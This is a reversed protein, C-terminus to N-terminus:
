EKILIKRYRNGERTVVEAIYTGNSFATVDRKIRNGNVVETALLEGTVAYLNLTAIEVSSEITIENTSPNPYLAFGNVGNIEAVGLPSTLVFTDTTSCGGDSVTLIYTGPGLDYLNPTTAGTNWSYTITGIGGSVSTIIFGDTCSWCSPNNVFTTLTFSAVYSDVFGTETTYCGNANFVTVSYYGSDLSSISSATSGTSWDYSVLPDNTTGIAVAGNNLFCSENTIALTVILSDEPVYVSDLVNCPSSSSTDGVLVTIWGEALGTTTTTTAGNEWVFTYDSGTGAFISASGTSGGCDTSTSSLTYVPNIWTFTLAQVDYCGPPNLASMVYVPDGPGVITSTYESATDNANSPYAAYFGIDTGTLGNADAIVLDNLDFSGCLAGPDTIVLDPQESLVLMTNFVITDSTSVNIGTATYYSTDVLTATVSLGTTASLGASPTWTWTYDPASLGSISLNVTNSGCSYVTDQIDNEHIISAGGYNLDIITDTSVPDVGADFVTFYEFTLTSGSAFSLSKHAISIAEDALASSGITGILGATGNWINIADRNSFGGRSVRFEPAEGVFGMYSLHPVTSTASVRACCNLGTPQMVITNTTTYDGSLVQNNDPDVNKYYYFEDISAGNNTIEVKTSFYLDNANLNTTIKFDLDYGSGVYTGEWIVYSYTSTSVYSTFAGPIQPTGNRSNSLSFNFTGDIIQIGWTNEPSGPVFYDGNFNVWGDMQPNAVYGFYAASGFRPHYGVPVPDVSYNAGEVGLAEDMGVEVYNGKLYASNTLLQANAHIALHILILLLLKKM